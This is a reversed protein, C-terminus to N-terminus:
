WDDPAPVVSVLTIVRVPVDGIVYTVMANTGPVVAYYLPRQKRPQNTREIAGHSLIQPDQPLLEFWRRMAACQEPTASRLWEELVEFRRVGWM